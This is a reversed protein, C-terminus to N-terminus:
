KKMANVTEQLKEIAKSISFLKVILLVVVIFGGVVGLTVLASVKEVLQMISAQDM